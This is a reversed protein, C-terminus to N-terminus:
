ALPEVRLDDFHTLSDAKTWLGVQGATAFSRDTAVFLPRGDLSVELRDGAIQLGLSLWRDRPVPADAGAFQIRRGGVVRYLRVNDELANARAVYYNAADCCRVVLGAAQDVRGAVARFRVSVALDRASFGGLLAMPFRNDTRDRSVEALVKPGAPAGPDQLVMWRPPPGGGTLATVFGPPPGGAAMAEFDFGLAQACSPGAALLVAGALLGRRGPARHRGTSATSAPERSM